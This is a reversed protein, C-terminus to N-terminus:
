CLLVPFLSLIMNSGNTNSSRVTITQMAADDTETVGMEAATCWDEWAAVTFHVCGTLYCIVDHLDDLVTVVALIPHLHTHTHTLTVVFCCLLILLIHLWWFFALAPAPSSGALPLVFVEEYELPFKSPMMFKDEFSYREPRQHCEPHFHSSSFECCSLQPHFSFLTQTFVSLM